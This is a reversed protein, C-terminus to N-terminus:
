DESLYMKRLRAREEATLIEARAFFADPGGFRRDMEAFLRRPYVARAEMLVEAAERLRPNETRGKVLETVFAIEEATFVGTQLYDFAVAERPFGLALLVLMAAVGARDKGASCHWLVAGEENSLLCAFFTRWFGVSRADFVLREYMRYFIEEPSADSAAFMRFWTEVSYGDRAIGLFSEDLLPLDLYRWGPVVPDPDQLREADTRLDIVSHVGVATKLFDLDAPDARRLAGSRVLRRRRVRPAGEASLDGLDRTNNLGILPLRKEEM